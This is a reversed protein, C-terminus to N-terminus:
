RLTRTVRQVRRALLWQAETRWATTVQEAAVPRGQRRMRALFDHRDPHADVESWDGDRMARATAAEIGDSAAVEDLAAAVATRVGRPVPKPYYAADALALGQRWAPRRYRCLEGDRPCHPPVSAAPLTCYHRDRMAKYRAAYALDLCRELVAAPAACRDLAGARYRTTIGPPDTIEVIAELVLTTTHRV